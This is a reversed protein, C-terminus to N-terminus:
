LESTSGTSKQSTYRILWERFAVNLTIKQDAAAKRADEIMTEDARFTIRKM